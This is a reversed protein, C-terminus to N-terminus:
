GFLRSPAILRITDAQYCGKYFMTSRVLASMNLSFGAVNYRNILEVGLSLELSASCKHLGVKSGLLDNQFIQM